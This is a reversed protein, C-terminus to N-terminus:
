RYIKDSLHQMGDVTPLMVPIKLMTESSITIIVLFLFFAQLSAKTGALLVDTEATWDMPIPKQQQPQTKQRCSRIRLVRM